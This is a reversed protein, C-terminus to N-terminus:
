ANACGALLPFSCALAKFKMQQAQHQKRETGPRLNQTIQAQAAQM